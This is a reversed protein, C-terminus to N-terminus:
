MGLSFKLVVIVIIVAITIGVITEPSLKPGKLSDKFRMIGIASSPGPTDSKSYNMKMNKIVM